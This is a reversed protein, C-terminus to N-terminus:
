KQMGLLTVIQEAAKNLNAVVKLPQLCEAIGNLTGATNAAILTRATENEIIGGSGDHLDELYWYFSGDGSRYTLRATVENGVYLDVIMIDQEHRTNQEDSM